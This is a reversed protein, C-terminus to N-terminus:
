VALSENLDDLLAPLEDGLVRRAAPWGGQDFLEGYHFDRATVNLNVGIAEAIKDLWWREQEDFQRGNTEQDELWQKYRQAVLEPYPVLEDEMELAHRVLSVLDTLVREARVGRVRDQELQAYARWLTETTWANPPMEIQQQLQEIQALTLERRRYPQGYLLELATIEDRNAELYERFSTVMRRARETDEESFGAERLVDISVTDIVMESRQKVRTLQHRLEPINFPAAARDMLQMMAADLQEATPEADPDADPDADQARRLIRAHEVIHDPDVSALLDAALDRPSKGGTLVKVAAVETETMEGELRSLRVALSELEEDVRYGIALRQLLNEFSVSRKRDLTGADIKPHEVVGVADVIVFHTKREADPTVSKLETEKLVRTGRGRMQQFYNASRVNRMFVLVELPKVDTGTAIMDVTVAVRPYYSNRLDNILDEPKREAKYTIKQCFADGRGFEERVIRVIEEAHNDDKAFILTKPVENRGPFIETFLREKFTKVVLRIQDPTQVERDLQRAEYELGEDLEEWREERTKKDRKKVWEGADVQSGQETIETQIRYVWSDVNVGDIVAEETNYEMVLNRNFFGFTHKAPTATLGILYADFYELVQRWL